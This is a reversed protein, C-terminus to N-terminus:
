HAHTTLPSVENIKKAPTLKKGHTAKANKKAM